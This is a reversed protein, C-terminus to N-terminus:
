TVIPLSFYFTSGKGEESEVWARGHHAEVIQRSLFLGIGLGELDKTREARYFRNFVFPLEKMPIGKGHDTVAVVAFGDVVSTKVSIDRSEDSYKIANSLYNNLVQMVKDRDAIVKVNPVSPQEIAFHPNAKRAADICETVCDGLEFSAAQLEYNGSILKTSQYLESVLKKLRQANRLM